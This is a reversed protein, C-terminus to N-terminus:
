FLHPVPLAQPWDCIPSVGLLTGKDCYSRMILSTQEL